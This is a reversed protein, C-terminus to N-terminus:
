SYCTAFQERMGERRLTGIWRPPWRRTRTFSAVITGDESCRASTRIRCGRTKASSICRSIGHRLL